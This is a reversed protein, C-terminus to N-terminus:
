PASFTKMLSEIHGHLNVRFKNKLLAYKQLFDDCFLLGMSRATAGHCLWDGWSSWKGLSPDWDTALSERNDLLGM